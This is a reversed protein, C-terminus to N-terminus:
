DAPKKKIEPWDVRVWRRIANEDRERARREPKQPSWGLSRLLRGIHDVHYRVHFRKEILDAVRPCTWLDTSFGANQAGGLLLDQLREKRPGTLKEPRGTAPQAKLAKRGEKLFSEKWRRVSRRGVKLRAAIDVPQIGKEFLVIAQLRRQELQAPSGFPRM